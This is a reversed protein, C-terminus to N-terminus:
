TDVPVASSPCRKIVEMKVSTGHAYACVRPNDRSARSDTGAVRILDASM